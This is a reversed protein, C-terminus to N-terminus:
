KELSNYKIEYQPVQVDGSGDGGVELETLRKATDLVIEWNTGASQQVELSLTKLLNLTFISGYGDYAWSFQSPESSSIVLSGRPEAFLSAYNRKVIKGPKIKQYKTIDKLPISKEPITNNCCDAIAVVFRSGKLALVEVIKEFAIGVKENRLQINPWRTQKKPTRYGHSSIYLWICADEPPNLEKLANSIEKVTVQDGKVTKIHLSFGLNHSAKHLEMQVNILNKNFARGLDADNTDGILLAHIESSHLLEPNVNAIAFLAFFLIITRINMQSPSTKNLRMSNGLYKFIM